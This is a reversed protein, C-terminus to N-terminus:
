SVKSLLNYDYTMIIFQSTFHYVHTPQGFIRRVQAQTFPDPPARWVPAGV